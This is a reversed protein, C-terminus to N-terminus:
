DYKIKDYIDNFMSNNIEKINPIPLDIKIRTFKIGLSMCQLQLYLYVQYDYLEPVINTNNLYDVCKVFLELTKENAYNPNINMLSLRQSYLEKVFVVDLIM